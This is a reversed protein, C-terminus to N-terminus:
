ESTLERDTPACTDIATRFRFVLSNPPYPWSTCCMEALEALAIHITAATRARPTDATCGNASLTNRSESLEAAPLTISRTPGLASFVNRHLTAPILLLANVCHFTSLIRM